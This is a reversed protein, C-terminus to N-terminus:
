EGMDQSQNEADVREILIAGGQGGGICMSAIGLNKQNNELALLLQMVIRAASAGVPHGQAISGGYINLKDKPIEGWATKRKLSNKCYEDSNLAKVCALVQGAFAENIEWYDIDSFDIKQKKLLKDIAHVPGIGMVEPEVGAWSINKIVARVPLNYKEVAKKSALIFFAAGDTIQSSNGATVKGVKKDFIPRLKALREVTSDARVGNDQEYVKGSKPDIVPSIMNKFLNNEQAYIVKQHSDAAFEDMEERSINFRHALEEATQGMGMNIVPDTLGQLLAIVPSLMSLRFKLFLTLKKSVTKAAALKSFWAVMKNNFLLPARSMAETGGTLILDSRGLLIDKMASDLAQLGSACNRQVTYAPVANGAGLRLSIVRAINAEQASPMVSGTIVEDLQDAAIPLNLLLERCTSVALDAASFPGPATVAKLFPTRKADIIYVEKM